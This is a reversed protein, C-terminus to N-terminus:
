RVSVNTIKYGRYFSLFREIGAYRAESANAASINYTRTIVANSSESLKGSVTVSFVKNAQTLYVGGTFDQAFVTAPVALALVIGLMGLFLLKKAM